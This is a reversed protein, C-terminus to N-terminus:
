ESLTIVSLNVHCVHKKGATLPCEAVFAPHPKQDVAVCILVVSRRMKANIQNRKDQSDDHDSAESAKRDADTM